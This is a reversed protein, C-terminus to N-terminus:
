GDGGGDPPPPPPVPRGGDFYYIRTGTGKSPSPSSAVPVPGSSPATPVPGWLTSPAVLFFSFFLTFFSEFMVDEQQIKEIRGLKRM